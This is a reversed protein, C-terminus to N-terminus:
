EQLLVHISSDRAVRRGRGASGGSDVLRFPSPFAGALLFAADEDRAALPFPLAEDAFAFPAELRVVPLFTCHPNHELVELFEYPSGAATPYLFLIYLKHM